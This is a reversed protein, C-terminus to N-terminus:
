DRRSGTIRLVSLFLNIFDLYLMLAGSVAYRTHGQGSLEAQHALNKLQASDAAILVSFVIVIVYNALANLTNSLPSNLLLLVVNVISVLIIGVLAFLAVARWRSLDRKTILGYAALILFMAASIGFALFISNLSYNLAIIGVTIGTFASYILFLALAVFGNLKQWLFSLVLVLVLQIIIAPLSLITILYLLESSRSTVLDIIFAIVATIVIGLTMWGYVQAAFAGQTSVTTQQNYYTNNM